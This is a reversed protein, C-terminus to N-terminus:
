LASLGETDELIIDKLSLQTILGREEFERIKRSLTEPTMGLQSAIDKRKLRLHIQNPAREKDDSLRDIELQELLYRALRTEASEVAMDIAQNEAYELRESLEALVRLAIEPYHLLVERFDDRQIRCLHVEDLAAAFHQHRPNGTLAMEGTFDGPHLIRVLKEKGEPTLNYIRVHGKRIINLADAAQGPSFIISAHPFKQPRVVKMVDWLQAENLQRFIPVKAACPLAKNGDKNQERCLLCPAEPPFDPRQKM